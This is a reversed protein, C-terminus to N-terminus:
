AKLAFLLILLLVVIILIGIWNNSSTLSTPLSNKLNKVDFNGSNLLSRIQEGLPKSSSERLPDRCEQTKVFDSPKKATNIDFDFLNPSVTAANLKDSLISNSITQGINKQFELTSGDEFTRAGRLVDRFSPRVIWASSGLPSVARTFITGDKHIPLKEKYLDCSDLWKSLYCVDWKLPLIDSVVRTITDTSARTTVDSQVIMVPIDPYHEASHNLCWLIRYYELAAEEDFGTKQYKQLDRPREQSIINVNFLYSGFLSQLYEIRSKDGDLDIIYVNVTEM